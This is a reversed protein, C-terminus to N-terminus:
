PAVTAAREAAVHEGPSRERRLYGWALAACAAGNVLGVVCDSAHHMGRYFRAYGVLLPVLVCVATLLLRQWPTRIRQVMLAFALWLATAAGVHGSPFSSTPPAPDLQDVDPRERGIVWTALVFVTSQVSIAIAPVVAVWWRGTRWWVLAVVLVCVGIIVETDGIRSWVMTVADWTATRSRQVAHSWADEGPLGDLPGQILAGLGVLAAWLLVTPALARLALDRLAELVLPASDDEEYRRVWDTM